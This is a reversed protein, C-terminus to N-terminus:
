GHSSGSCVLLVAAETAATGCMAQATNSVVHVPLVVASLVAPRMETEPYKCTEPSASNLLSCAADRRVQLKQRITAFSPRLHVDTEWCSRALHSYLAPVGSPFVPRSQKKYV